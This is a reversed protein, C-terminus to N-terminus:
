VKPYTPSCWLSQLQNSLLWELIGIFSGKQNLVGVSRFKKKLSKKYRCVMKTCGTIQQQLIALLLYEPVFLVFGFVFLDPPRSYFHTCGLGARLILWSGFQEVQCDIAIPKFRSRARCSFGLQKVALIDWRMSQLCLPPCIDRFSLHCM